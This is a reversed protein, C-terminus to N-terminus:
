QRARVVRSSPCSYRYGCSYCPPDDAERKASLIEKVFSRVAEAPDDSGAPILRGRPLDVLMARADWEFVMRSALQYVALQRRYAKIVRADIDRTTKYDLLYVDGAPSRCVRDIRGDIVAEQGDVDLILRFPQELALTEFGSVDLQRYGAMMGTVSDRWAREADGGSTRGVAQLMWRERLRDDTPFASSSHGWQLLEHVLTGRVDARIGREREVEEVDGDVPWMQDPLGPMRWEYLYRYRLPCQAFAALASPSLQLPETTVSAIEQKSAAPLDPEPPAEGLPPETQVTIPPRSTAPPLLIGRNQDESVFLALQRFFDFNCNVGRESGALVSDWDLQERRTATVFLRDKARTLAVYVVRREEKEALEKPTEAHRSWDDYKITCKEGSAEDLCKLVLGYRDDFFLTGNERGRFPRLHALFVIPFELGKASHITMFHVADIGAVAAEATRIDMQDHQEVYDIFDGLGSFVRRAEFDAAMRTLKRINAIRRQGESHSGAALAVYRSRELVFQLLEGLPMGAKIAMGERILDLADTVREQSSEDLEPFGERESDALLDWATQRRGRESRARIAYMERDGVRVAPGQLLRILAKDDLPNHIVRLYALVDKIEQRDFFGQGRGTIYPIGANRLQTEFAVPPSGARTLIAMDGWRRGSEHLEVLRSAIFLAEEKPDSALFLQVADANHRYPSAELRQPIYPVREHSLIVEAADLIAQDSRYNEVLAFKKDGSPSRVNLNKPFDLINRVAADRWGYISQRPDGVVELNVAGPRALAGLFELQVRNTDQFEDVIIYRFLDTVRSRFSDNDRLADRVAILVGDFDLLKRDALRKGYETYTANFLREAERHAKHEDLWDNQRAPAISSILFDLTKLIFQQLEDPSRGLGRVTQILNFMEDSLRMARNPTIAELELIAADILEDDRLSRQVAGVLKATELEDVITTERDFGILYCNEQLMRFALAHFTGIWAGDLEVPGSILGRHILEHTIRERLEGAAKNTFTVAMIRKPDFGHAEVLHAFRWVMTMTKGTGAGAIVKQPTNVPAQIVRRQIRNPGFPDGAELIGGNTMGSTVQMTANLSPQAM